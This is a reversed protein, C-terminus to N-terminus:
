HVRYGYTWKGCGSKGWHADTDINSCKPLEGKDRQKKHWVNGKAQMLSSDASLADVFSVDNTVFQTHLDRIQQRLVLPLAKFRKAITTRHPCSELGCLSQLEPKLQLQKAITQFGMIRKILMYLYLKLLAKTSYQHKSTDCEINMADVYGLLSQLDLAVIPQTKKKTM